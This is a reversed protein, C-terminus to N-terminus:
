LILMKYLVYVVMNPEKNAKKDKVTKTCTVKPTHFFGM